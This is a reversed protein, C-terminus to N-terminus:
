APMCSNATTPRCAHVHVHVCREKRQRHERERERESEREREGKSQIERGQNDKGASRSADKAAHERRMREVCVFVDYVCACM